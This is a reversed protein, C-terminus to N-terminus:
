LYIPSLNNQIIKVIMTSNIIDEEDLSILIDYNIYYSKPKFIINEKYNIIKNIIKNKQNSIEIKFKIKEKIFFSVIIPQEINSNAYVLQISKLDSNFYLLIPENEKINLTPFPTYFYNYKVTNIILPYNRKQNQEKLSSILPNIALNVIENYDKTIYYVNNNYYSINEFKIKKNVELNIKCDISLIHILLKYDAKEWRLGIKTSNNLYVKYVDENSIDKYNNLIEIDKVFLILIFLFILNYHFKLKLSYNPM